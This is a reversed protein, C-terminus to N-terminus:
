EKKETHKSQHMPRNDWEDESLGGSWRTGDEDEHFFYDEDIDWYTKGGDNSFASPLRRSQHLSKGPAAPDDDIVLRWEEISDNIESLPKWRVLKDFVATVVAASGGSHGQSAFKQILELVAEGLMGDYDSDKDFLGAIELEKKAFSTLNEKLIPEITYPFKELPKRKLLNCVDKLQEELWDYETKVKTEPLLGEWYRQVRLLEDTTMQSISKEVLEAETIKVVSELGYGDPSRLYENKRAQLKMVMKQFAKSDEKCTDDATDIDDLIDYLATAIQEWTMSKVEKIALLKSELLDSSKIKELLKDFM